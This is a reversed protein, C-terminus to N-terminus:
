FRDPIKFYQASLKKIDDTNYHDLWQMIKAATNQRMELTSHEKYYSIM